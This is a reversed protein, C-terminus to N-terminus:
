DDNADDNDDSLDSDNAEGESDSLGHKDWDKMRGRGKLGDFSQSLVQWGEAAEEDMDVEPDIMGDEGQDKSSTPHSSDKKKPNNSSSEERAKKLELLFSARGLKAAQARSHTLEDVERLKRQAKAVANFLQVVGRTAIKQLAKEKADAGPDEGRRPPVVHGRMRMEMKLRKAARDAKSLAEEEAKRTALSKSGALIPADLGAALTANRSASDLTRAFARALTASKGGELFGSKHSATKSETKDIRNDIRDDLDEEESGKDNGEVGFDEAEEEEEEKDDDDDSGDTDDESSSEPESGEDGEEESSPMGQDDTSLSSESGGERFDVPM